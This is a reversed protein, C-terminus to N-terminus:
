ISLFVEADVKWIELDCDRLTKFFSLLLSSELTMYLICARKLKILIQISLDLLTYLIYFCKCIAIFCMQM